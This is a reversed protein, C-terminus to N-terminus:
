QVMQNYKYMVIYHYKYIYGQVLFFFFAVLGKSGWQFYYSERLCQWLHLNGYAYHHYM